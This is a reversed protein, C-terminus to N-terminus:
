WDDAVFAGWVPQGTGPRGLAPDAQVRQVRTSPDIAFHVQLPFQQCPQQQQQQQTPPFQQCPQQQQTPLGTESGCASTAGAGATVGPQRSTRLAEVRAKLAAVGEAICVTHGCYTGAAARVETLGLFVLQTLSTNAVLHDLSSRLGPYFKEPCCRGCLLTAPLAVSALHPLGQLARVLQPANTYPYSNLLRPVPVAVLNPSPPCPSLRGSHMTIHNVTSPPLVHTCTGSDSVSICVSSTSLWWSPCLHM